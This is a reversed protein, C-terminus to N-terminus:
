GTLPPELFAPVAGALERVREPVLSYLVYYGERRSRVLGAEALV